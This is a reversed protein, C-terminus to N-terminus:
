READGETQQKYERPTLGTHKTFARSFAHVSQFGTLEAVATVSLGRGLQECAKEFRRRTQYSKLSEGMTASFLQSIHTYSYGFRESLERLRTLECAHADIYASVDRVLRSDAAMGDESFYGRRGKAGFLRAATCILQTLLAGLMLQSFEDPKALEELFAVFSDFVAPDNMKKVGSRRFVSILEPYPELEPKVFRFAVYFYRLPETMSSIINHTEGLASIVVDGRKVDFDQGNATFIGAGSVIYSIEDVIQEHEETTYGAECVLDGAQYLLLDGIRLEEDEYLNDFHLRARGIPM